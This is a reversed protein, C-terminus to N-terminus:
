RMAAGPPEAPAVVQVVRVTTIREDRFGMDLYLQHARENTRMVHLFPTDGRALQRGILKLM